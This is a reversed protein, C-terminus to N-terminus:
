LASRLQGRLSLPKGQGRVTSRRFILLFGLGGVTDHVILLFM